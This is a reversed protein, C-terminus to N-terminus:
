PSEQHAPEASIVLGFTKLVGRIQNELDCRMRVLVPGRRWIPTCPTARKPRSTFEAPGAPAELQAVDAANNRDTKAPLMKSGANAHRADMCVVPLGSARASTGSGCSWRDSRWASGTRCGACATM